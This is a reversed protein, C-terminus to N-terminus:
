QRIISPELWALPPSKFAVVRAQSSQLSGPTPHQSSTAQPLRKGGIIPTAASDSDRLAGAGNNSIEPQVVKYSHAPNSFITESKRNREFM